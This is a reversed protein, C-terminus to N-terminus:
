NREQKFLSSTALSAQAQSGNERFGAAKIAAQAEPSSMFTKWVFGSRCNEAMLVMPGIDIGLVDPNFWNATPNFSDVFGFKLYAREGYRSKMNELADLCLRPEFALSGGAAAPVVSGDIEGQQPPGGWATYGHESDSATIGWLKEGYTPFRKSLEDICWQRQALTALQANRFYDAYDDRQGRLDFWVQPYQHTFLPPCQIFTLGAYTTVPERQWALWASPPLPHTHSGLGLLYILPGESFRGWQAKIFGSEPKWGMYLMAGSTGSKGQLDTGLLWPWDVAEFLENAVSALETNPFHQRVTLVGAMLLATDINSVECNWVRQGTRMDLFHYFHGHSQPARDRLFRLVRLSRDYADQHPVWGHEDGVCLCTLGFGVSAISAVDGPHSGDAKARDPMLGTVPDAEDIFFQIGRRELDDLFQNDAASLAAAPVPASEIAANDAALQIASAARAYGVFVGLAIAAIKAAAFRRLRFIVPRLLLV